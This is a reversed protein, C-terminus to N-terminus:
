SKTLDLNIIKAGTFLQMIISGTVIPGIGLHMLSGSQGALIARFESFLDLTTPGLGYITVNALFFYFILIGLTWLMKTRFKVHGEPRKVAPWKDVLPKLGYLYSEGEKKRYSVAMYILYFGGALLIATPIFTIWTPEYKYWVGALALLYFIVVPIAKSRDREIAM